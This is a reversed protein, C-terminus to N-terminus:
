SSFDDILVSFLHPAARLSHVPPDVLPPRFPPRSSKPSSSSSSSFRLSDMEVM